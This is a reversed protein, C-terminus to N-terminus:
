LLEVAADGAAPMSGTSGAMRGRRGTSGADAERRRFDDLRNGSRQRRRHRGEV